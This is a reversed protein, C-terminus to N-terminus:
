HVRRVGLAADGGQLLCEILLADAQPQQDAAFRADRRSQHLVDLGTLHRRQIAGAVQQELERVVGQRREIVLEHELQLNVANARDDGVRFADAGNGVVRVQQKLEHVAAAQGLDRGSAQGAREAGFRAFDGLQHQVVVQDVDDGGVDMFAVRAQGGDGFGLTGATGAEGLQPLVSRGFDEGAFENGGGLRCLDLAAAEESHKTFSSTVPPAPNM